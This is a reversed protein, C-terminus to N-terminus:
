WYRLEHAKSDDSCLSLLISQSLPVLFIADNDKRPEVAKRPLTTGREEVGIMYASSFARELPYRM